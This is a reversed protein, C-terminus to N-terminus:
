FESAVHLVFRDFRTFEEKKKGSATSKRKGVVVASWTSVPETHLFVDSEGCMAQEITSSIEYWNRDVWGCSYQDYKLKKWDILQKSTLVSVSNIRDYNVFRRMVGLKVREVLEAEEAPSAIYIKLPTLVVKGTYSIGRAVDNMYALISEALHDPNQQIDLIAAWANEYLANTFHTESIVLNRRWVCIKSRM